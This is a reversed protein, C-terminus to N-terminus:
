QGGGKRCILNVTILLGNEEVLQVVEACLSLHEKLHEVVHPPSELLDGDVRCSSMLVPSPVHPDNYPSYAIHHQPVFDVLKGM